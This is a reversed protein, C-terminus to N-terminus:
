ALRMRELLAVFRPHERLPKFLFSGKVGYISGSRKAEAQELCDMADDHRGLGTYLAHRLLTLRSTAQPSAM